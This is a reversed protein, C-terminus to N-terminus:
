SIGIQGHQPCEPDYVAQTVDHYTGDPGIRKGMFLKECSCRLRPPWVIESM